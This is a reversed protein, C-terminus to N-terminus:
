LRIEEARALLAEGLAKAETYGLGIWVVPKGFHLVVTNNRVAIALQTEGQDDPRLKGRPYRSDTM